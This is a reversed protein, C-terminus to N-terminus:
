VVAVLVTVGVLVATAAVLAWTAFTLRNAANIQATAQREAAVANMAAFQADLLARRHIHEGSHQSSKVQEVFAALVPDQQALLSELVDAREYSGKSNWDDPLTM